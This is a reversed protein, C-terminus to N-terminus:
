IGGIPVRIIPNVDFNKSKESSHSRSHELADAQVIQNGWKKQLLLLQRKEEDLSRMAACGGTQKAGSKSGGQKTLYHFKNVRLIKRHRNLTQLCFDYDEKLPIAEDFRCVPDIHVMFPALVVSTFSFPTYERYCQKDMNVNIGWLPTGLEMAMLSYKALFRNLQHETEIRCLAEGEHWGIWQLDDDIICVIRGKNQDLIWNRVRAINGQIKDPMTKLDLGKGINQRRYEAEESEAVYVRCHPLYALTEVFPRKYSPCCVLIDSLSTM